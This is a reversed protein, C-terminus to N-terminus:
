HFTGTKLMVLTCGRLFPIGTEELRQELEPSETGPNFIVRGPRAAVIADILPRSRQPGVYLTMTDVPESLTDLSARVPIGDIEGARPHVPLVRYGMSKLLQVALHSYRSPKPSAGLVVVSHTQDNM